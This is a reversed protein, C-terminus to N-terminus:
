WQLISLMVSITLKFGQMRSILSVVKGSQRAWRMQSRRDEATGLQSVLSEVESFLSNGENLTARLNSVQVMDVHDLYVTELNNVLQQLSLLIMRTSDVESWIAKANHKDGLASAIPVLIECIKGAAALIGVISAAVGLVEM